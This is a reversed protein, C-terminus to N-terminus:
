RNKLAAGDTRSFKNAESSLNKIEDKLSSVARVAEQAAIRIQLELTKSDDM